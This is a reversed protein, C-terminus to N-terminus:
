PNVTLFVLKVNNGATATIRASQTQVAPHSTITFTASTQGAPVLVTSPLTAVPSGSGLSVKIGGAPAAENLTVTGTVTTSGSVTSQSLVLSQVTFPVIRITAALTTNPFIGAISAFAASTVPYTTVDVTGSFQGAGIQITPPITLLTPYRNVLRITAGNAGAPYSITATLHATDGGQIALSDFALSQIKPSGVSVLFSTDVTMNAPNVGNNTASLVVPYNGYKTGAPPSMSISTPYPYSSSTTLHVWSPASVIAVTVKHYTHVDTVTVPQISTSGPTAYVNVPKVWVPAQNTETVAIHFSQSASQQTPTGDDSVVVTVPYSQGATGFTPSYTLVGSNVKVGTPAIPLAYSLYASFDTELVPLNVNLTQGEAVSQDPIPSMSLTQGGPLTLDATWLGRGHTALLLTNTGHVFRCEDVAVAAPGIINSSWNLGGDTSWVLGVDTGAFLWLPRSPHRAIGNVPAFPLGHGPAGALSTWTVGGDKTVWLNNSSYGGFGVYVTNKNDSDILIRNVKRGTPLGSIVTWNNVPSQLANHSVFIEGDNHGVWATNSDTNAVAIASIPSNNSTPWKARAFYPLSDRSNSSYWLSTGGAWLGTPTNPDLIFPAIFNASVGADPLFNYIFDASAGGNSSRHLELDVYEGYYYLGNTPDLESFGGDGGFTRIATQNGPVLKTSGNDQLGGYLAGFVGDAGYYQTSHCGNTKADWGSNISVTTIDNAVYMGGDTAVYVRKNLNGDYAPDNVIGHLDAHPNYLTWDMIKTLTGGGDISRYIDVGGVVVLNPNTPDVWIPNSYWSAGYGGAKQTWDVGSNTSQYIHCDAQGQSGAQSAVSAYVITPNSPTTALDIRSYFNGITGLTNVLTWSAGNDTSRATHYQYTSLDLFTVLLASGDTLYKASVFHAGTLDAQFTQGGDTSRYLGGRHSTTVFIINPNTPNFEISDISTWSQTGNVISWTFGSDTSTLLGAGQLADGNFYGEGTGAFMTSPSDPKIAITNIALSPLFDNIPEWTSGRTESYWIGGGATGLWIRNTQTPHITVGLARGSINDPGAENWNIPWNPPPVTGSLKRVSMTSSAFHGPKGIRGRFTPIGTVGDKVGLAARRGLPNITGNSDKLSLNYYEIARLADTEPQDKSETRSEDNLADRDHRHPKLWKAQSPMTLKAKLPPLGLLSNVTRAVIPKIATLKPKATEAQAMGSAAVVLAMLAALRSFVAGTEIRSSKKRSLM